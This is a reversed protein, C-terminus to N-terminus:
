VKGLEACGEDVGGVGGEKLDVEGVAFVMRTLGAREM